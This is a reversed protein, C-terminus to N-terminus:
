SVFGVERHTSVEEENRLLVRLAAGIVEPDFHTASCRLLESRTSAASRQIQYSRTTMMACYAESVRIIRAALPINEGALGDPYGTGDWNEHHHKVAPILNHLYPSVELIQAGLEPHQKILAWENASLPGGKQLLRDPMAIKGVDHLLGATSVAFVAEQAMGLERAIAAALDSVQYSHTSIGQDRSELLGMLSQITTLQNARVLQEVSIGDLSPADRRELNHITAALANDQSARRAELATRLQNRGLRKAWYMAQDAKDVVENATQGDTPFTAAGISITLNIGEEVRGLALPHAAVAVRMREAVECAQTIDTEPLLVMFEEGGYRGITDGGRLSERVRRGLEQLVVDGVSHGHTDNVRKFHDGDFFLISVPHGYRRARDFEKELCELLARHNPLETLPDKTALTELRTNAEALAQNKEQLAHQTTHLENNNMRLEGHISHLEENLKQMQRGHMVTERITLVQRLLVLGILVAGGAYIGPLLSNGRPGAFQTYLILVGVAPVLAYPLLSRWISPIAAASRPSLEGTRMGASTDLKLSVLCFAQAALGILMYGLPWGIDLLGGTSYTIGYQVTQFDFVSDTIVIFALALSLLRLVPRLLPDSTRSSLLLLCFIIVLDSFPYAAGVVKEFLTGSVQQMTPGLIFYWSFTIVAIMIMLGDALVRSRAAMSLPRTPLLLIALLLFPYTSLYGADAWSPFPFLQHLIQEYYTWICQGILEGLVAFGLLIPVRLRAIRTAPTSESSVQRQWAKRISVVCLIVGLLAGAAQGLNDVAVFQDHTGPKILLWVFLFGSFLLVLSISKRLPRAPTISTRFTNM